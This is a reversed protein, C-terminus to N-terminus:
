KPVHTRIDAPSHALRQHKQVRRRSPLRRPNHQSLALFSDCLCLQCLGRAFTYTTVLILILSSFPADPQRGPGGRTLNRSLARTPPARRGCVRPSPLHLFSQRSFFLVRCGLRLSLSPRRTKSPRLRPVLTSSWAQPPGRHGSSPGSSPAFSAAAGAALSCLLLSFPGLPHLAPLHFEGVSMYRVIAENLHRSSPSGRAGRRGSAIYMMSPAVRNPRPRAHPKPPTAARSLSSARAAWGFPHSRQFVPRAGPPKTFQRTSM